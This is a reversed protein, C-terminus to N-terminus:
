NISTDNKIKEHQAELKQNLEELSDAVFALGEVAAVINKMIPKYNTMARYLMLGVAVTSGYMATVFTSKDEEKFTDESLKSQKYIDSNGVILLLMDIKDDEIAKIARKLADIYKQKKSNDM